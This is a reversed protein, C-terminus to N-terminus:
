RKNRVVVGGEVAFEWPVCHPPDCVVVRDDGDIAGVIANITLYHTFAVCDRDLAAVFSLLRSRWAQVEAPMRGYHGALLANLCSRRGAPDDVGPADPVPIETLAPEISVADGWRAALPQATQRARLLPSSLIPMPAFRRAIDEAGTKAQDLGAPSLPSDLSHDFGLQSKGHRVFVVRVM